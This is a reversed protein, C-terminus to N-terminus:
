ARRDEPSFLYFLLGIVLPILFFLFIYGYAAAPANRASADLYIPRSLFQMVGVGAISTM